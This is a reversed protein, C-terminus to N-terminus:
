INFYLEMISLMFFLQMDYKNNRQLSYYVITRKVTHSVNVQLIKYGEVNIYFLSSAEGGMGKKQINQIYAQHYGERALVHLRTSIIIFPPTM